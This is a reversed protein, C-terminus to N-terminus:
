NQATSNRFNWSTRLSESIKKRWEPSGRKKERESSSRSFGEIFLEKEKKLELRSSHKLLIKLNRGGRIRVVFLNRNKGVSRMLIGIVQERQISFDVTSNPSDLESATKPVIGSLTNIGIIRKDTVLVHYSSPPNSVSRSSFAGLIIEGQPVSKLVEASKSSVQLALLELSPADKNKTATAL